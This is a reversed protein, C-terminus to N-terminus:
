NIIFDDQPVEVGLKQLILREYQLSREVLKELTEFNGNNKKIQVDQQLIVQENKKSREENGEVRSQIGSFTMAAMWVFGVLAIMLWFQVGLVTDKTLTLLTKSKEM